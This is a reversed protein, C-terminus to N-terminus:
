KQVKRVPNKAVREFRNQLDRLMQSTTDHAQGNAFMGIFRSRDVTRNWDTRSMAPQSNYYNQYDFGNGSQSSKILDDLKSSVQEKTLNGSKATMLVQRLQDSKDKFLKPNKSYEAENQGFIADVLMNGGPLFVNALQSLVGKWGNQGTIDSKFDKGLLLDVAKNGLDGWQSGSKYLDLTKEPSLGTDFGQQNWQPGVPTAPMWPLNGWRGLGSEYLSTNPQANAYNAQMANPNQEIPGSIPGVPTGGTGTPNPNPSTTPPTVPTTTPPTYTGTNPLGFNGTGIRALINSVASGGAGTNAFQPPPLLGVANFPMNIPNAAMTGIWPATANPGTTTTTPAATNYVTNPNGNNPNAVGNQATTHMGLAQQVANNPDM